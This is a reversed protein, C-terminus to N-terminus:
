KRLILFVTLENKCPSHAGSLHATDPTNVLLTTESFLAKVGPANEELNNLLFNERGAEFYPKEM